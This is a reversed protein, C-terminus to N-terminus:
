LRKATRITTEVAEILASRLGLEELKRVGQITSGGPSCVEDKLEGPHKGSELVMKASGLVAQAALRYSQQRPIGEAVGADALAEIVMYLFAPSSGSVASLADMLHEEIVDTKGFSSLLREVEQKDEETVNANYCIGTMGEGVLSPTNPMTRVIKKGSGFREELWKLTKGPAISIMIHDKTVTEKIEEIVGEYMQPKVGLFVVQAERVVQCNDTTTCIGFRQATRNASEPTSNSGIVDEQKVAKTKLMGNLMASAMTGCGLLGVKM